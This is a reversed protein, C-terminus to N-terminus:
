FNFEDSVLEYLRQNGTCGFITIDTDWKGNYLCTVPLIDSLNSKVEQLNVVKKIPNICQYSFLYLTYHKHLDKQYLIFAILGFYDAKAFPNKREYKDNKVLAGNM